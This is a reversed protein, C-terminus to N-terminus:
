EHHQGMSPYERSGRDYRRKWDAVEDRLEKIQATLETNRARERRITEALDKRRDARIVRMTKLVEPTAQKWAKTFVAVLGLIVIGITSAWQLLSDQTFLGLLLASAPVIALKIPPM